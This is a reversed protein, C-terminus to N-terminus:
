HLNHKLPKRFIKIINLRLSTMIMTIDLYSLKLKIKLDMILRDCSEKNRKVQYLKRQTHLLRLEVLM